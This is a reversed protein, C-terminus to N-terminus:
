ECRRGSVRGAGPQDGWSEEFGSVAPSVDHATAVVRCEGLEDAPDEGLDRVEEAHEDLLRGKCRGRRSGEDLVHLGATVLGGLAHEGQLLVAVDELVTVDVCSLWANEVGM